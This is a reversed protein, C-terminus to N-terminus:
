LINKQRLSNHIDDVKGAVNSMLGMQQQQNTTVVAMREGVDRIKSSMGNNTDTGWIAHEIKTIRSGVRWNVITGGSFAGILSLVVKDFYSDFRSDAAAQILPQIDLFIM